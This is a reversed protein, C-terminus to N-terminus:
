HYTRSLNHPNRMQKLSSRQGEEVIKGEGKRCNPQGPQFLELANWHRIRGRGGDGTRM